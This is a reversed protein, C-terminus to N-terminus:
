CWCGTERNVKIWVKPSVKNRFADYKVISKIKIKKLNYFEIEENSMSHVDDADAATLTFGYFVTDMGIQEFLDIFLNHEESNRPYEYGEKDGDSWSDALFFSDECTTFLIISLIILSYKKM